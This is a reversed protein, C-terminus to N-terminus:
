PVYRSQPNLEQEPFTCLAVLQHQEKVDMNGQRERERARAREKCRERVNIFM